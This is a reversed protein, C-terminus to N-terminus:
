GLGARVVRVGQIWQAWGSRGTWGYGADEDGEADERGREMRADREM